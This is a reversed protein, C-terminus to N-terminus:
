SYECVSYIPSTFVKEPNLYQLKVAVIIGLVSNGCMELLDLSAKATGGSAILDDVIMIKKNKPVTIKGVEITDQGYELEYEKSVVPPPLKGKKRLLINPINLRDSIASGFIFGRSDISAIYDIDNSIFDSMVDLTFKFAKVDSILTTIDKFSVGKEPYDEIERIFKKINM